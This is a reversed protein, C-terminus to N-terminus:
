RRGYGGGWGPRNGPSLARWLCVSFLMSIWGSRVPQIARWVIGSCSIWFSKRSKQWEDILCPGANGPPAEGEQSYGKPKLQHVFLSKESPRKKNVIYIVFSLTVGNRLPSSNMFPLIANRKNVIRGPAQSAVAGPPSAGMSLRRFDMSARPINGCLKRYVFARAVSKADAGSRHRLAPHLLGDGEPFVLHGWLGCAM